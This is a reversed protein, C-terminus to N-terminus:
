DVLLDLPPPPRSGITGHDACRDCLITKRWTSHWMEFDPNAQKIRTELGAQFQHTMIGQPRQFENPTMFLEESTMALQLYRRSREAPPTLVITGDLTKTLMMTTFPVGHLHRHSRESAKYRRRRLYV